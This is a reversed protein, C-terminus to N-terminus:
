MALGFKDKLAQLNKIGDVRTINVYWFVRCCHSELHSGHIMPMQIVQSTPLFAIKCAGSSACNSLFDSPLAWFRHRVLEGPSPPLVSLNSFWPDIVSFQLCPQANADGLFSSFAFHQHRTGVKEGVELSESKVLM